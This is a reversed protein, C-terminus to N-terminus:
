SRALWATNGFTFLDRFPSLCRSTRRCGTINTYFTGKFLRFRSCLSPQWFSQWVLNPNCLNHGQLLNGISYHWERQQQKTALSRQGHSKGPLFLLTPQRKRRWPIKRVWLNFGCRSCQCTSEKSSLWRPLGIGNVYPAGFLAYNCNSNSHIM